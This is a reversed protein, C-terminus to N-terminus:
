YLQKRKERLILYTIIIAAVGLILVGGVAGGIIPGLDISKTTSATAANTSTTQSASSGLFVMCSIILM